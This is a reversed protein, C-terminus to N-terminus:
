EGVSNYNSEPVVEKPVLKTTDEFGEKVEIAAKKVKGVIEYEEDAEKADSVLEKSAKGLNSFFTTGTKESHQYAKWCVVGIVIIIIWKIIKM